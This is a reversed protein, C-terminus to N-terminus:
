VRNIFFTLVLMETGPKLWYTACSTYKDHITNVYKCLVTSWMATGQGLHSDPEKWINIVWCHHVQKSHILKVNM